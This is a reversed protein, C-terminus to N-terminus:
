ARGSSVAFAVPLGSLVTELPLEEAGGFEAGTLVSHFHCGSCRRPLRLSTEAPEAAARARHIPLRQLVVLAFQGDLDRLYAPHYRALPGELGLPLYRGETFLAPHRRRWGLCSAIMWQKFRGDLFASGPERGEVGRELDAALKAFDVERRNDPDVLSLDLGEAGQYIDPVGPATLKSLTQSLSNLAGVETLPSLTAAFDDLFERNEADLLAAAFAGVAKEYHDNVALWDTRLKAERLAKEVYPLFREALGDLGERDDPRMFAPWTGALAQYLLWEVAPEPVSGGGIRQRLRANLASWRQVAANWEAPTEAIAYLRARADEGRKTDHTATALLGPAAGVREQMAEHFREVSPRAAGTSGVENLAILPNVRYFLTDEMAKAMIPGTLQQFRIRFRLAEDRIDAEIGEGALLSAIFSLTDPAARKTPIAEALAGDLVARDQPSLPGEEGYTRYVDFGVVLEGIAERFKEESADSLGLKVAIRRAAAVLADLEGAFNRRLMLLKADRAADALCIPKGIFAEYAREILPLGEPDILLQAAAAIFEYGTTGIRGWEAPLREDEGLIKEVLIWVDPGVEQRLRRLYSGPRALGDVHDVRLGDVKGARVLSLVLRHVDDFVAEDEVRVGVLGTIEFFRRYSLDRRAEKWFCLRWPQEAHMRDIFSIDRALTELADALHMAGEGSLWARVADHFDTRSVAATGALEELVEGEEGLREAFLRYSAPSLPLLHDFYAFALCGNKHDAEIKFEGAALAEGYPRGLIPLTLRRSWDIDFHAAFPSQSGFELVSRWWRNELSAAMHNPVIDLLLGMGERGVAAALRVFGEEGGIAPDIENYDVVDYGHTSGSAATFIPSAYLHSIGLRKLYPVIGAARDFTMGNRFQLRYTAVPPISM